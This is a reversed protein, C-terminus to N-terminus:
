EEDKKDQGQTMIKNSKYLNEKACLPQFNTYHSLQILEIENKASSIPIIHDLQWTRKKDNYLGHNSWDMWPEFQNELYTKFESFTCGLIESTKSSKSYGKNRFGQYILSRINRKLRFLNNTKLKEKHALYLEEKKDVRYRKNYRNTREVVRKIKRYEAFKKDCEDKNDRYYNISYEKRAETNESYYKKLRERECKICFNRHKGSDKRFYFESLLKETKCKICIKNEM